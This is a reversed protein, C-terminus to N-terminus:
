SAKRWSLPEAWYAEVALLLIAIGGFVAIWIPFPAEVTLLGRGTRGRPLVADVIVGKQALLREFAARNEPPPNLAVIRLPISRESYLALTDTLGNFDSPDDVLDSILVVDGRTVNKQELLRAALLLGSSISTGASFSNEWPSRPRPTGDVDYTIPQRRDFFRIFPRLERAPTGPPLAEYADDSFLVVGFRQNTESLSTLENRILDYTSPTISSSIDLVVIGVTSAPFFRRGQAKTGSAFAAILSAVVAAALALRLIGTRRAAGALPRIDALPIAEQRRRATLRARLRRLSAGM